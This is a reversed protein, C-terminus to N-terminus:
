SSLALVLGIVASNIIDKADEVAVPNGVSTLYRFGGYILSAMALIGVISILFNYMGKLYQLFDATNVGPIKVLPIYDGAAAMASAAAFFFGLIVLASFIKNIKM